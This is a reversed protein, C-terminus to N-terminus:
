FGYLRAPNEVLIAQQLTASPAWTMMADLLQGDHPMDGDFAPHPWDTGWLCRDPFRNVLDVVISRVDDFPYAIESSRYVCLKIWARGGSLLSHVSARGPHDAPWDPKLGGLHDLVIEVPLRDLVPLLSALQEGHAYLQIHWGLPAIREAVDIMQQLPPGGLTVMNFRAGRVGLAHMRELTTDPVDADIVVVGRGREHGFRALADLMCANDTGYVSAQVIVLRETGITQQVRRYGDLSAECPTYSRTSSLSFEDVPGIIHFHTDCSQAPARRKPPRITRHPPQCTAPIM